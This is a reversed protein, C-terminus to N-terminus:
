KCFSPRMFAVGGKGEASFDEGVGVRTGDVFGVLGGHSAVGFLFGEELAGVEVAGPSRGEVWVM